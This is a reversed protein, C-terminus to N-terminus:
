NTSCFDHLKAFFSTRPISYNAGGDRKQAEPTNAFWLPRSLYLGTLFSYRIVWSFNLSMRNVFSEEIRLQVDEAKIDMSTIMNRSFVGFNRDNECHWALKNVDHKHNCRFPNAPRIERLQSFLAKEVTVSEGAPKSMRGSIRDFVMSFVRKLCNAM